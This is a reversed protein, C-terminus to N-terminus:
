AARRVTVAVGGETGWRSLDVGAIKNAARLVDHVSVGTHNTM